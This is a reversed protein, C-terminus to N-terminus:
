GADGLTEYFHEPLLGDCREVEVRLSANLIEPKGFLDDPFEDPHIKSLMNLHDDVTAGVTEALRRCAATMEDKEDFPELYRFLWTGLLARFGIFNNTRESKLEEHLITNKILLGPGDKWLRFWVQGKEEHYIM